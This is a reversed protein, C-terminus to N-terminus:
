NGNEERLELVFWKIAEVDLNARRGEEKPAYHEALYDLVIPENKGLYNLGQTEQMWVIMNKWGQRTARNQTILKASHCSTCTGIILQLNKDAVLGTQVHIGDEVLDRNNEREERLNIARQKSFEAIQEKTYVPKKMYDDIHDELLFYMFALITAFLISNILWFLIKWLAKTDHNQSEM